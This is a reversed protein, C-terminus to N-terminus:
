ITRRIAKTRPLKAVGLIDTGPGGGVCAVKLNGSRLLSELRLSVSGLAQRVRDAHAPVTRYLYALQTTPRSYDVPERGEELLRGRYALRLDRCHKGIMVDISGTVLTAARPVLLDLATKVREFTTPM